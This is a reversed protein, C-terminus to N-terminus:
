LRLELLTLFSPPTVITSENAEWYDEIEDPVWQFRSWGSEMRIAKLQPCLKTLNELKSYLHYPNELEYAKFGINEVKQTDEAALTIGKTGKGALRRKESNLTIDREFDVRFDEYTGTLASYQPVPGPAPRM